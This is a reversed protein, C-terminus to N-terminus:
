MYLGIDIRVGHPLYNMRFAKDYTGIKVLRITPNAERELADRGENSYVFAHLTDNTKAM